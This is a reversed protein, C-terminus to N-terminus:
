PKGGGAARDVILVFLPTVDELFPARLKHTEPDWDLVEDRFLDAAEQPDPCLERSVYGLDVGEEAGWIQWVPVRRMLLGEQPADFVEVGDMEKDKQELRRAAKGVGVHKNVADGRLKGRADARQATHNASHMEEFLTEFMMALDRDQILPEVRKRWATMLTDFAYSM